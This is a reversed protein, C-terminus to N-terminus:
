KEAYNVANSHSFRQCYTISNMQITKVYTYSFFLLFNAKELFYVFNTDM